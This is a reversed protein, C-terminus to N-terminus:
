PASEPETHFTKSFFVRASGPPDCPIRGFETWGHRAYFGPAQFSATMLFGTQCGRAMAETEMIALLKAGLDQGRLSAPLFVLDIILTGYSTRGYMGGVTEFTVPDKVLAALPRYDRYGAKDESYRALGVSIADRDADTPADTLVIPTDNL